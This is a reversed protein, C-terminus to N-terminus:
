DTQGFLLRKSCRKEVKFNAYVTVPHLRDIQIDTPAIFSPHLRDVNTLGDLCHSCSQADRKCIPQQLWCFFEVKFEVKTQKVMLLYFSSAQHKRCMKNVKWKRDIQISNEIYKILIFDEYDSSKFLLSFLLCFSDLQFVM